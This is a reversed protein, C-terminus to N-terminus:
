KETQLINKLFSQIGELFKVKKSKILMSKYGSTTEVPSIWFAFHSAYNKFYKTMQYILEKYKLAEM